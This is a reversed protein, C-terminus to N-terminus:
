DRSFLLTVVFVGVLVQSALNQWTQEYDHLEFLIVENELIQSKQNQSNRINVLKLNLTGRM